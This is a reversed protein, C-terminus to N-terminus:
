FSALTLHLNTLRFGTHSKKNLPLLLAQRTNDNVLDECNFNAHGQGKSHPSTYIGTSYFFQLRQDTVTQSIIANLRDYSDRNVFYTLTM